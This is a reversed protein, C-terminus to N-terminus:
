PRRPTRGPVTRPTVPRGEARSKIGLLQRRMFIFDGVDFVLAFPRHRPRFYARVRFVLRTRGDPLRYLMPVSTIRSGDRQLDLVLAHGPEIARVVFGDDPSTRLVDGVQLDQLEPVVRDASPVDANDFRDYSYWGARTYGGMQVLWPWVRSPPADITIGRTACLTPHPVLEDGPMSRRVEDATSGWELHWPRLLWSYVLHAVAALGIFTCAAGSVRDGGVADWRPTM